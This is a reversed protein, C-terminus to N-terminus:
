LAVRTGTDPGAPRAEVPPRFTFEGLRGAWRERVATGNDLAAAVADLVVAGIVAAAVAQDLDPGGPRTGTRFAARIRVAEASALARGLSGAVARRSDRIWAAVDSLYSATAALRGTMSDEGPGGLHTAFATVQASFAQAGRGEWVGAGALGALAVGQHEYRDVIARVREATEILPEPRLGAVSDVAALPLAGTRRVAACFPHGAPVGGALLVADVLGLLDRGDDLLRDLADIVM